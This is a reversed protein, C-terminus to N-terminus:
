NETTITTLPSLLGSELNTVVEQIFNLKGISLQNAPDHIVLQTTHLRQDPTNLNMLIDTLPSVYDQYVFLDALQDTEQAPPTDSIITRKNERLATYLEPTLLQYPIYVVYIRDAELQSYAEFVANTANVAATIPFFVVPAYIPACRGCLYRGGNQFIQEYSTNAISQNPLIGGVRWDEAILESIYGALFVQEALNQKIQYVSQPLPRDDLTYVVYQVDPQLASSDFANGENEMVIVLDNAQPNIEPQTDHVQFAYGHNSSFDTLYESIKTIEPTAETQNSVFFLTKPTDTPLVETPMNTETITIATPITSTADAAPTGPSTQCATLWLLGLMSLKLFKIIFHKKMKMKEKM